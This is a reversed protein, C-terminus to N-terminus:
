FVTTILDEAVNLMEGVMWGNEDKITVNYVLKGDYARIANIWGYVCVPEGVNYKNEMTVSWLNKNKGGCLSKM